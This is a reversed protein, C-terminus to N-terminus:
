NPISHYRGMSYGLYLMERVRVYGDLELIQNTNWNKYGCMHEKSGNYINININHMRRYVLGAYTRVKAYKGKADRLCALIFKITKVHFHYTDWMYGDYVCKSVLCVKHELTGQIIGNSILEMM